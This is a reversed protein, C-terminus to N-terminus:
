RRHLFRVFPAHIARYVYGLYYRKQMSEQEQQGGRYVVNPSRASQIARTPRGQTQTNM